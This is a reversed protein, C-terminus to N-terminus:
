YSVGPLILLHQRFSFFLILEAAVIGATLFATKQLDKGLYPNTYALHRTTTEATKPQLQFIPRVKIEEKEKPLQKEMSTDKTLSLQRRLDAIIKQQRTKRKAM